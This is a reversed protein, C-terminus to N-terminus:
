LRPTEFFKVQYIYIKEYPVGFSQLVLAEKKAEDLTDFENYSVLGGISKVVFKEM